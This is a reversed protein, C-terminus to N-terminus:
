HSISVPVLLTWYLVCVHMWICPLRAADRVRELRVAGLESAGVSFHHECVTKCM